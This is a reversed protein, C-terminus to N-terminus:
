TFKNILLLDLITQIKWSQCFNMNFSNGVVILVEGSSNLTFLRLMLYSVYLRLKIYSFSYPRVIVSKTRGLFCKVCSIRKIENNYSYTIFDFFEASIALLM